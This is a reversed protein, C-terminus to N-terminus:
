FDDSRQPRNRHCSNSEFANRSIDECSLWELVLMSLGEITNMTIKYVLHSPLDDFVRCSSISWLWCPFLWADSVLLFDFYSIENRKDGDCDHGGWWEWRCRFWSFPMFNSPPVSFVLFIFPVVVLCGYFFVIMPILSFLISTMVQTHSCSTSHFPFTDWCTDWFVIVRSFFSSWEDECWWCWSHIRDSHSEFLSLVRGWDDSKIKKMGTQTFPTIIREWPDFQTVKECCLGDGVWVWSCLLSIGRFRFDLFLSPNIAM